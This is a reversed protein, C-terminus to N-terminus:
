CLHCSSWGKRSIESAEHLLSYLESNIDCIEIAASGENTRFEADAGHELLWSATELQGYLTAHYLLTWGDENCCNVDLGLNILYALEDLRGQEVLYLAYLIILDQGTGSSILLQLTKEDTKSVLKKFIPLRVDYNLQLPIAGDNNKITANAHRELLWHVIEQRTFVVAQHLLTWGEGDQANIDLGKALATRLGKFDDAAIMKMALFHLERSKIQQVKSADINLSLLKFLPTELDDMSNIQICELPIGGMFGESQRNPDAGLDLLRNVVHYLGLHAARHLFTWGEFTADVDDLKKKNLLRLAAQEKGADILSVIQGFLSNDYPANIDDYYTSFVLDYFRGGVRVVCHQSFIVQDNVFLDPFPDFPKLPPSTESFKEGFKKSARHKTTVKSVDRIGIKKCLAMFAESLEFCNLNQAESCNLPLIHEATLGNGDPFYTWKNDIIFKLFVKFLLNAKAVEDNLILRNARREKEYLVLIRNQVSCNTKQDFLSYM